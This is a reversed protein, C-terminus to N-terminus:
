VFELECERTKLRRWWPSRKNKFGHYLLWIDALGLSISNLHFFLISKFFHYFNCSYLGISETIRIKLNFKTFDLKFNFFKGLVLQFKNSFKTFFISGCLNLFHNLNFIITKSILSSEIYNLNPVMGISFHKKIWFLKTNKLIKTLSIHMEYIKGSVYMSVIKWFGLSIKLLQNLFFFNCTYNCNEINPNNKKINLKKNPILFQLKKKFNFSKWEVTNNYM